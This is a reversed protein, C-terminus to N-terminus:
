FLLLFMLKNQLKALLLMINIDREFGRLDHRNAISQSLQPADIMAQLREKSLRFSFPQPNYHKTEKPRQTNIREQSNSGYSFLALSIIFHCKLSTLCFDRRQPLHKHIPAGLTWAFDRLNPFSFHPSLWRTPRNLM